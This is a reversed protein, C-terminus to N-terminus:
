FCQSSNQGYAVLRGIFPFTQSVFLSRYCLWVPVHGSAPPLQYSSCLTVPGFCLMNHTFIVLYRIVLNRRQLSRDKLDRPPPWHADTPVKRAPAWGPLPCDGFTLRWCAALLCHNAPMEILRNAVSLRAPPYESGVASSPTTLCGSWYQIVPLTNAVPVMCLTVPCQCRATPCCPWYHIALVARNAHKKQLCHPGASVPVTPNPM